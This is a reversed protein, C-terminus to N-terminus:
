NTDDTASDEWDLVANQEEKTMATVVWHAQTVLPATVVLNFSSPLM